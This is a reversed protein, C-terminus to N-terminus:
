GMGQGSPCRVSEGRILEPAFQLRRGTGGNLLEMLMEAARTGILEFRHRVTTLPPNMYAAFFSGDYGMVSLDKPVSVGNRALETIAGMAMLDNACCIATLDSSKQLLEKVAKAGSVGSFDGFVVYDNDHQIGAEERLADCFGKYRAQCLALDSPGNMYGIKRHGQQVLFSGALKGGEYDDSGVLSCRPGVSSGLNVTPIGM